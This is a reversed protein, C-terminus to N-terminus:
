CEKIEGEFVFEAPGRMYVTKDNNVTIQLEGGDLVVSVPSGARCYGRAVAAATVACAGTGCALTVGSGREWVRMRIKDEALIRAFEVNTGGPFYEHKELAKGVTCLPANEADDVFLVAHPNGMNVPTLLVEKGCVFLRVEESVVSKGMNVGVAAVKGATVDMHINKVGSLTEIGIDRRDTYGKEYLYKAVCRIGNGCMMAESGDANFIRMGFDGKISPTIFVMGDSGIGFHRDSLKISLEKVNEPPNGFVYIYDNGLGQMKTFKM